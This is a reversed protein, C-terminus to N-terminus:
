IVLGQVLTQFRQSHKYLKGKVNTKLVYGSTEVKPSM